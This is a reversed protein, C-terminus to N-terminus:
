CKLEVKRPTIRIIEPTFIRTCIRIYPKINEQVIYYSIKLDEIHNLIVSDKSGFFVKQTSDYMYTLPNIGYYKAIMRHLDNTEVESKRSGSLERVTLFDIDAGRSLEIMGESYKIGPFRSIQALDDISAQLYMLEM